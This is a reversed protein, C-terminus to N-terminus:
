YCIMHSNFYGVIRYTTAAFWTVPFSSMFAFAVLFLGFARIPKCVNRSLASM